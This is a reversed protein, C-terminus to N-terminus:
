EKDKNNQFELDFLTKEGNDNMVAVCDFTKGTKRSVCGNLAVKGTTLLKVATDRDMTKGIAEFLHQDHWLVFRCGRNECFFGKQSETVDNGCRPCKGVPEKGSPFLIESGRVSQYSAMTNELMSVIESIFDDSSLQGHEVEKLKHEWEATLLPSQLEEPLITILNKGTDTPVLVTSKQSKKRVVFGAEILKEIIGARTAPTGLGKREADDPMEKAGANELASLLTDETYRRPPTTKSEKVAAWKVPLVQGMGLTPLVDDAEGQERGYQKWGMDLVTKGKATFSQGACVLTVTTEEYRYPKAMARIVSLALLKLIERESGPLLDINKKGAAETPILAYHDSVKRSSCVAKSNPNGLFSYGSIAEASALVAPVVDEMDDILYRSDTRPYSCLKKEYLSQLCDLTQQATYGLLRNADRQLTTLDYLAPPNVLKEKREVSQVVAEHCASALSDAMARDSMRESVSQFGCDIQVTYFPEPVFAAIEAEREVLLSLTPSMVRGVNLKTRYLLTFYRTANIGVLWDAEARCLAAQYLSEYESGPKLNEFGERIANDEMSSIWLRKIPKEGGCLDYVTRFIREGERGADCANIIEEVDPRNMLECLLEYQQNTDEKVTFRFPKPVIPLDEKRWKTYAPDYTGCDALGALHGYCWSVLWGNGEMYGENKKVAGLVAAITKGVSPKEAIVIRM